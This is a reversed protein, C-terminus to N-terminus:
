GAAPLPMFLTWIVLLAVSESSFGPLSLPNSEQISDRPAIPQWLHGPSVTGPPDGFNQLCKPIQTCKFWFNSIGALNPSARDCIRIISAREQLTATRSAISAGQYVHQANCRCCFLPFCTVTCVLALAGAGAFASVHQWGHYPCWCAGGSRGIASCLMSCFLRWAEAPPPCRALAGACVAVFYPFLRLCLSARPVCTQTPCDLPALANM